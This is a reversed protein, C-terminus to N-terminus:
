RPDFTLTIPRDGPDAPTQAALEFRQYYLVLGVAVHAAAVLGIAIWTTRPLPQKRENFDLPSVSGPGGATRIMM